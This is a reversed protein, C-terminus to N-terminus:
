HKALPVSYYDVARLDLREIRIVSFQSSDCASSDVGSALKIGVKLYATPNVTLKRTDLSSISISAVGRAVDTASGALLLANGEVQSTVGTPSGSISPAFTFGTATAGTSDSAQVFCLAVTQDATIVFQPLTASTVRPDVPLVVPTVLTASGSQTATVTIRSTDSQNGNSITYELVCDGAEAPTVKIETGSTLEASCTGSFVSISSISVDSSYNYGGIPPIALPALTSAQGVNANAAQPCATLAAEFDALTLASCDSRAINTTLLTEGASRAPSTVSISYNDSEFGTGSLRVASYGGDIRFNVYAFLEGGVQDKFTDTPNGCYANSSCSGLQNVLDGANFNAIVNGDADLFEVYNAANGASWWLGFYRQVGNPTFTVNSPAYYNGTGGAGGYANASLVYQSGQFTGIPSTKTCDACGGTALSDFNETALTASTLSTTQAKAQEFSVTLSQNVNDITFRVSATAGAPAECTQNIYGCYEIVYDTTGIRNPTDDWQYTSYDNSYSYWEDAPLDNWGPTCFYGTNGYLTEQRASTSNPNIANRACWNIVLAGERNPGLDANDPQPSYLGDGPKSGTGDWNGYSYLFGNSWHEYYNNVQTEGSIDDQQVRCIGRVGRNLCPDFNSVWTLDPGWFQAGKYNPVDLVNTDSTGPRIALYDGYTNTSRNGYNDLLYIATYDFIYSNDWQDLLYEAGPQCVLRAGYPTIDTEYGNVDDARNPYGNCYSSSPDLNVVVKYGSADTIENGDNDRAILASTADSENGNFLIYPGYPGSIINRGQPDQEGQRTLTDGGFQAAEPGDVWNWIGETDMDSGGVWAPFVDRGNGSVNNNLFKYEPETTISALYGDYTKGAVTLTSNKAEQRATTWKVFYRSTDTINGFDDTPQGMGDSMRQTALEYYHKTYSNWWVGPVTEIAAVKVSRAIVGQGLHATSNCHNSDSNFLWLNQLAYNLDPIAGSMLLETSNDGSLAITGATEPNTLTTDFECKVGVALRYRDTESVPVSKLDTVQIDLQAFDASGSVAFSALKKDPDAPNFVIKTPVSVDVAPSAFAATVPTLGVAILACVIVLRKARSLFHFTKTMGLVQNFYNSM